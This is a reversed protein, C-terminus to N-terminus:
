HFGSLGMRPKAPGLVAIRMVARGDPGAPVSENLKTTLAGALHRLEVAWASSDAQITLVGEAFGVPTCHEAIREGVVDSWNHVVAGVAVPTEWGHEAMLRGITSRLPQPDRDDSRSGSRKLAGAARGAAGRRSKADENEKARKRAAALAARALDVGRPQEQEGPTEPSSM